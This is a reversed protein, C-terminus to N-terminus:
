RLLCEARGLLGKETYAELTYIGKTFEGTDNVYISVELETGEYDM